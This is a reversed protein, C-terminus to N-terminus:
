FISPFGLNIIWFALVTMFLRGDQSVLTGKLADKDAFGVTGGARMMAYLDFLQSAVHSLPLYSMVTESGPKYHLHINAILGTLTLNDHSLMAGPFYLLYLVHKKYIYYAKGLDVTCEQMGKPLGTTGSTYLLLAAQNPGQKKAIDELIQDDQEKEGMDMVQQWTFMDKVNETSGNLLVIKEVTPFAESRPRDNLITRYTAMDELVLIQIPAHNCVHSVLDPSNSQYIGTSLGGGHIAGLSAIYWEPCNSAMIGVAKYQQLGMKHFAKAVTRVQKRYEQYTWTQWEGHRKVKLAIHDPYKEATSNLLTQVLIPENNGPDGGEGM